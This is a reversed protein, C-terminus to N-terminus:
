HVREEKHQAITPQMNLHTELVTTMSPHTLNLEWCRIMGSLIGVGEGMKKNTVALVVGLDQLSRLLWPYEIQNIKAYARIAPSSVYGKLPTGEKDYELRIVLSQLHMDPGLINSRGERLTITSRINSQLFHSLTSMPDGSVTQVAKRIQTTERVAWAIINAVDYDHLHLRKAIAAGVAICAFLTYWFREATPMDYEKAFTTATKVITDRIDDINKIVYRIFIRGAIGYNQSTVHLAADILSANEKKVEPCGSEFIRYAHANNGSRSMGLKEYLSLNSTSCVITKWQVTNTRTNGTKDARNKGRGESIAYTIDALFDAPITTIEDFAVPISQLYGITNLMPIRNDHVQIHHENPKGWVTTLLKLVTSKGYGSNGQINYIMGNLQTLALLPAAFPLMLAFQLAETDKINKYINFGMKWKDIDGKATIVNRYPNLYTAPTAPRLTGEKDLVLDGLVFRPNDTDIDRWGFRAFEEQAKEEKQIVKAYDIIYSVLESVEKPQILVGKEALAAAVKKPDVLVGSPIKILLRGDKPLTLSLELLENGTEEDKLRRTPFIDYEYLKKSLQGGDGDSVLKYIGGNEKGRFYPHPPAPLPIIEQGVSGDALFVDREVQPAEAPSDVCDLRVPTRVLEQYPCGSCWEPRLSMFRSCLTPGDQNLRVQAFKQSTESPSYQPHRKSLIHAIDESTKGNVELYDAVGLTSYWEPESTTEINHLYSSLWNCKSIITKFDHKQKTEVGEQLPTARVKFDQLIVLYEEYSLSKGEMLIKVEKPSNINKFNITEPIRLFSSCDCIRSSDAILRPDFVTFAAKLHNALIEWQYRTVNHTFSWYVHFGYGSGVVTPTPLKTNQIFKILAKLGDEKSLYKNKDTGIDIDLILSKLERINEKKKPSKKGKEDVFNEDQIAGVCFYADFGSNAWSLAAKRFAAITSFTKISFKNKVATTHGLVYPGEAPLISTFFDEM